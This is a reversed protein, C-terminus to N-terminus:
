EAGLAIGSESLLVAVTTFKSASTGPSGKGSSSPILAIVSTRIHTARTSCRGRMQECCTGDQGEDFRRRAPTVALAAMLSSSQGHHKGTV